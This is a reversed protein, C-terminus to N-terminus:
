EGLRAFHPNWYNVYRTHVSKGDFGSREPTVVLSSDIHASFLNLALLTFEIDDILDLRNGTLGHELFNGRARKPARREDTMEIKQAYIRDNGTTFAGATTNARADDVARCVSQPHNNGFLTHEVTMFRTVGDIKEVHILFIGIHQRQVINEFVQVGPARFFGPLYTVGVIADLIQLIKRHAFVILSQSLCSQFSPITSYHLM